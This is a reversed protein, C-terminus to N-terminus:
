CYMRLECLMMVCCFHCDKRSRSMKRPGMSMATASLLNGGDSCTLCDKRSSKLKTETLVFFDTSNADCRECHQRERLVIQHHERQLPYEAVALVVNAAFGAAGLEFEENALEGDHGLGFPAHRRWSVGGRIRSWSILLFMCTCARWGRPCAGFLAPSCAASPANCCGTSSRPWGPEDKMWEKGSKFV